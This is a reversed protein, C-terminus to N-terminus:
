VVEFWSSIVGTRAFGEAEYLALAATNASSVQLTCGPAKGLDNLAARLISRGLGQRWLEPEVALTVLEPVKESLDVEFAGWRNTGKTPWPM